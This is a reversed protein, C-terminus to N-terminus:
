CKWADTNDIQWGYKRPMDITGASQNGECKKTCERQSSYPPSSTQQVSNSHNSKTGDTWHRASLGLLNGVVKLWASHPTPPHHLPPTSPVINKIFNNVSSCLWYQEFLLSRKGMRTLLHYSTLCYYKAKIFLLMLCVTCLSFGLSFLENREKKSPLSHSLRSIRSLTSLTPSLMAEGGSAASRACPCGDTM